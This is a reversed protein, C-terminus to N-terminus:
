CSLGSEEKGIQCSDLSPRMEAAPSICRCCLIANSLGLVATM